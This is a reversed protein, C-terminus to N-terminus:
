VGGCGAAGCVAWVGAGAQAAWVAGEGGGDFIGGGAIAAVVREVDVRNGLDYVQGPNGNTYYAKTLRGVPFAGLALMQNEYAARGSAQTTAPAVQAKDVMVVDGADLLFDKVEALPKTWATMTKGDPNPRNLSVRQGPDQVKLGAAAVVEGITTKGPVLPYRGQMVVEGFVLVAENRLTLPATAAPGTAPVTAPGGPM